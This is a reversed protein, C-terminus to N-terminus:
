SGSPANHKYYGYLQMDTRVEDKYINWITVCAKETYWGSFTKDSYNMNDLDIEGIIEGDAVQIEIPKIASFFQKESNITKGYLNVNDTVLYLTVTHYVTQETQETEAGGSTGCSVLSCILICLAILLTTAKKM